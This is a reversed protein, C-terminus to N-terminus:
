EREFETKKKGCTRCQLKTITCKAWNYKESSVVIFKHQQKLKDCKNKKKGRIYPTLDLANEAIHFAERVDAFSKKSWGKQQLKKTPSTM